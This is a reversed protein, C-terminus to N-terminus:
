RSRGWLLNKETMQEAFDLGKDGPYELRQDEGNYRRIRPRELDALRSEAFLTITATQGVDIDMYDMRGLFVLKPDDLVTFSDNLPAVWVRADRGQYQQNLAISINESAGEGSVPVGSLKLAIGRAELSSGEKVADIGGLRGLGQWTYGNWEISYPANCVRVFGGSFDLEVFVILPVSAGELASKVADTLTRSM